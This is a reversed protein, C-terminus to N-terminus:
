GSQLGVAPRCCGTEGRTKLAVSETSRPATRHRFGLWPANGMAILPCSITDSILRWISSNPPSKVRTSTPVTTCTPSPMALMWPKCPAPTLSNSSKPLPTIPRARFRSASRTPAAMRPSGLATLSPSRTRAVPRMMSTGAPSASIPRTTFGRPWGRSPLPGTLAVAVRGTSRTAGLTTARWPTFVGTCVPMLAMSEMIGMPLPWRSSIM